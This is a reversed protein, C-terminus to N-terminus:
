CDMLLGMKLARRIYLEIIWDWCSLLCKINGLLKYGRSMLTLCFKRTQISIFNVWSCIHGETSCLLYFPLVNKRM